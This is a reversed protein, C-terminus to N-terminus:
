EDLREPVTATYDGALMSRMRRELETLNMSNHHGADEILQQNMRALTAIDDGTAVRHTLALTM